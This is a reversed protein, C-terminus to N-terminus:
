GRRGIEFTADGCNLCIQVIDDYRNRPKGCSPCPYTMGIEGAGDQEAAGDRQEAVRTLCNIDFWIELDCDPCVLAYDPENAVCFDLVSARVIQSCRPCNLIIKEGDFTNEQAIKLM